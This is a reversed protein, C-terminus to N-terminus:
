SCPQNCITDITCVAISALIGCVVPTCDTVECTFCYITEGKVTDLRGPSNHRNKLWQFPLFYVRQRIFRTNLDQLKQGIAQGTRIGFLPSEKKKVTTTTNSNVATAFSIAVLTFVALISVVLLKKNM